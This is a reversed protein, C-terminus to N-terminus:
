IALKSKLRQIRKREVSSKHPLKYLDKAAGYAQKWKSKYESRSSYQFGHKASTVADRVM